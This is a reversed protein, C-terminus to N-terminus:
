TLFLKTKSEKLDRVKVTGHRDRGRFDSVTRGEPLGKGRDGTNSPTNTRERSRIGVSTNRHDNVVVSDNSRGVPPTYFFSPVWDRTIDKNTCTHGGVKNEDEVQDRNM